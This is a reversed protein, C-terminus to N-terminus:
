RNNFNQVILQGVPCLRLVNFTVIWLKNEANYVIDIIKKGKNLKEFRNLQTLNKFEKVM